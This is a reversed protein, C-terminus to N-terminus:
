LLVADQHINGVPEIEKKSLKQVTRPQFDILPQLQQKFIYDLSRFKRTRDKMRLVRNNKIEYILRGAMDSMYANRNDFKTTTEGDMGTLADMNSSFQGQYPADGFIDIFPPFDRNILLINGCMAAEQTILSYSESKSAMIFVNSLLFLDRVMKRPCRSKLSDDFESTFTLENDNLGKEAGLTKLSERYVLKDGGTSHFDVIIMRVSMGKKKAQALIEIPVEANKGRDLRIPYVCIMDASLLDKSRALKETMPHMDMYVFMDTPHNVTKVEDQEYGFNTAVRRRSYSNPFILFSNPFKDKLFPTYLEKTEGSLNLQDLLIHPTTASHIWHLWRLAPQEAAIRRCAVNTKLEAPQYILDHTFVVDIDKLIEKLAEYTSKVDDDFKDDISVSNSRTIAPVYRMEVEPLAYNEIPKFGQSAIVVPKYGNTVLMKIQDQAVNNLSYACDASTFSTLIAVKKM